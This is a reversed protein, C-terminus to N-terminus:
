VGTTFTFTYLEEDSLNRIFSGCEKCIYAPYAHAADMGYWGSTVEAHTCEGRIDLIKTECDSILKSLEDVRDRIRGM